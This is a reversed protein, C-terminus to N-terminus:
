KWDFKININYINNIKKVYVHMGSKSNEHMSILCGLTVSAESMM